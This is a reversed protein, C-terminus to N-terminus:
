AAAEKVTAAEKILDGLTILAKGLKMATEPDDEFLELIISNMKGALTQTQSYYDNFASLVPSNKIGAEKVAEEAKQEAAAVAEEMEQVRQQLRDTEAKQAELKKEADAKQADLKKQSEAAQAKLKEEAEKKAANAKDLQGQVQDVKGQMEAKTEARAAEIAAEDREVAVQVPQNRLGELEANALRMDEAMKRNSEEVHAKDAKAQEAAARADDLQEELSAIRLATGEDSKQAEALKKKLTEIEGQAANREQIAEKLARVSMNEVDNKLMFAEREDPEMAAMILAQSYNLNRYTDSNAVAADSLSKQPSGYAEFVKILNNAKDHSFPTERELFGMWEGHKAKERAEQLRRGIEIAEMISGRKHYEMLVVHERIETGIVKLTREGNTDVMMGLAEAPPVAAGSELTSVMDQTM